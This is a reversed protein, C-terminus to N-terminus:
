RSAVQIESALTKVESRFFSVQRGDVTGIVKKDSVYLVFEKGSKEVVGRIIRSNGKQEVSYTYTQGDHVFSTSPAPAAISVNSVLTLALAATISLSKLM